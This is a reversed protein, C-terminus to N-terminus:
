FILLKKKFKLKSGEEVTEVVGVVEGRFFAL